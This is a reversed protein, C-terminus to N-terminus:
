MVPVTSGTSPPQVLWQRGPRSRTSLIKGYALRIWAIKDILTM